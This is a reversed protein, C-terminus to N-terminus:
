IMGRVYLAANRLRHPEDYFYGLGINCTNCLIGRICKGCSAAAPCCNHDHDLALRQGKSQIVVLPLECIPCAYGQKEALKWWDDLTLGMRWLTHLAPPKPKDAM